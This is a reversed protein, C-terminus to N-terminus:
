GELWGLSVDALVAGYSVKYAVPRTLGLEEVIKKVKQELVDKRAIFPPQQFICQCKDLLLYSKCCLSVFVRCQNELLSVYKSSTTTM